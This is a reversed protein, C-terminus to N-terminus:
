RQHLHDLGDEWDGVAAPALAGRIDIAAAVRPLKEITIVEVREPLPSDGTYIARGSVSVDKNGFPNLADEGMTRSFVCEIQAEGGALTLRGRWIAGRYDIAELRGDFSSIVVGGFWMDTLPQADNALGVRDVQRRFLADLPLEADYFRAVVVYAPDLAAAIRQFARMLRPYQLLIQYDSRYVRGACRRFLAISSVARPGRAAAIEVLGFECPAASLHDIFFASSATKPHIERDAAILAAFVADFLKKFVPVPVAGAPPGPAQRTLIVVRIENQGISNV